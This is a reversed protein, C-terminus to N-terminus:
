ISTKRGIARKIDAKKASKSPYGTAKVRDPTAKTKPKIPKMTPDKSTVYREDNGRRKQPSKVLSM